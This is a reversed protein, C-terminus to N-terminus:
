RTPEPEEVHLIRMGNSTLAAKIELSTGDLTASLYYSQMSQLDGVQSMLNIAYLSPGPPRRELFWSSLVKYAQSNGQRQQLIATAEIFANKSSKMKEWTQIFKIFVGEDVNSVQTYNVQDQLPCIQQKPRSIFTYLFRRLAEEQSPVYSWEYHNDVSRRFVPRLTYQCTGLQGRSVSSALSYTTNGRQSSCITVRGHRDLALIEAVEPPGKDAGYTTCSGGSVSAIVADPPGIVLVAAFVIMLWHRREESITIYM